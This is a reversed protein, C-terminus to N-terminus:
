RHGRPSTQWVQCSPRYRPLFVWDEICLFGSSTPNIAQDFARFLVLLLTRYKMYDKCQNEYHNFNLFDTGFIMKCWRITANLEMTEWIQIKSNKIKEDTRIRQIVYEGSFKNRKLFFFNILGTLYCFIFVFISLFYQVSNDQDFWKSEFFTKSWLFIISRSFIAISKKM